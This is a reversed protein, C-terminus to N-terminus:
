TLLNLLEERSFPQASSFDDTLLQDALEKKQEQLACIREEITDKVILRLVTVVHTQGIRHARDTAQEQVANNWWPDYHIVIDAATLNLGTGGARLSICFIPTDDQQFADVMRAREEKPTAGTLLYYGLHASRLRKTLIDLMSTFQSFLLVKHGAEVASSLLQLCLELKASSARYDQYLLSPDCCLQRLKTLESLVTIRDRRLEEDSRGRLDHILRETHARYLREQEGEAHAYYVEELKPPLDKLVDAKRRRLLFPAVIRRLRGLADKDENEVIPREYDERFRNYSRLFGPMLFDFISWLESLRNEIPTGTLAARFDSSVTKVAHALQTGPNKINQAEDLVMCSFHLSQYMEIDRRLLDYSTVLVQTDTEPLEELIRRRNAQNGTITECSLEPTFRLLENRWNYVLSAPCVILAPETGAEGAHEAVSLLLALIQLTKGLGMDDALIGGFGNLYLRGLWCVGETQYDRLVPQLSAPIMDEPPEAHLQQLLQLYDPAGYFSTEGLEQELEELLYTNYRPLTLQGGSRTPQVSRFFEGLSGFAHFAAPDIRAIDGNKLRYYHRRPEYRSLIEALEERSMGDAALDMCLLDSSLRVGVSVNRLPRIQIRNLSESLYVEGISRLAPIVDTVFSAFAEDDGQYVYASHDNDWSQFYAALTRCVRQEDYFNRGEEPILPQIEPRVPRSDEEGPYRATTRCSISSRDVLDLYLSYQPVLPAYRAPEFGDCSVVCRKELLPLLHVVFDPLESDGIFRARDSISDRMFRLFPLLIHFEEMPIRHLREDTLLYGYDRGEMPLPLVSLSMQMGNRVGTLQLPLIPWGDRMYIHRLQAGSKTNGTRLQLTGDIYRSLFEDLQQPTLTFLRGNVGPRNQDEHIGLLKLLLQAPEDFADYSHPFSLAKGYQVTMHTEFAACFDAAHRILYQHEPTGVHLELFADGNQTVVLTPYLGVRHILPTLSRRSLQEYNQLLRRMEPLTHAPQAAAVPHGARNPTAQMMTAVPEFSRRDIRQAVTESTESGAEAGYHELYYLLLATIHPCLTNGGTQGCDCSCSLLSARTEDVVASLDLPAAGDWPYIQGTITRLDAEKRLQVSTSDIYGNTYLGRGRVYTQPDVAHQLHNRTFM